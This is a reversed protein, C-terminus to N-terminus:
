RGDSKKNDKRQAQPRRPTVSKKHKPGAIRASRLAAEFRKRAEEANYQDHSAM